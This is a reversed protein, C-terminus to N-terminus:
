ESTAEKLFDPVAICGPCGLEAQMCATPVSQFCGVGCPCLLLADIDTTGAKLELFVSVHINCSMTRLIIMCLSCHCMRWMPLIRGNLWIFFLSVDDDDVVRVRSRRPNRASTATGTATAAASPRVFPVAIDDAVAPALAPSAAPENPVVAPEIPAAAPVDAVAAAAASEIAVPPLFAAAASDAASDAADDAAAVILAPAAAEAAPVPPFAAAGTSEAIPAAAVEAGDVDTDVIAAPAPEEVPAVADAAAADDAAAAEPLIASPNADAVTSHDGADDTNAGSLM